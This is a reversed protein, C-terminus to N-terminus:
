PMEQGCCECTPIPKVGGEPFSLGKSEEKETKAIFAVVESESYGTGTYDDLTKLLDMEAHRDMKAQRAIKNDGLLIRTSEDETDETDLFLVPVKSANLELLAAYLHHGALITGDASAYIPRYCGNTVISVVIEDVDGNNANGPHPKIREIDVLHPVVASHFRIM